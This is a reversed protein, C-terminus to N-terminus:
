TRWRHPSVCSLVGIRRIAGDIIVESQTVDVVFGDNGRALEEVVRQRIAPFSPMKADGFRRDFSKFDNGVQLLPPRRLQIGRRDLCHGAATAVLHAWPGLSDLEQLQYTRHFESVRATADFLRCLDAVEDFVTIPHLPQADLAAVRDLAIFSASCHAPIEAIRLFAALNAEVGAAAASWAERAALLVLRLTWLDGQLHQALAPDPSVKNRFQTLELRAMLVDAARELQRYSDRESTSRAIESQADALQQRVQALQEAYGTSEARLERLKREVAEALGAEGDSPDPGAAERAILLLMAVDDAANRIAAPEAAADMGCASLLPGVAEITKQAQQGSAQAQALDKAVREHSKRAQEFDVLLGPSSGTARSRADAVIAELDQVSETWPTTASKADGAILRHLDKQLRISQSVFRGLDRQDGEAELLAWAVWVPRLNQDHLVELWRERWTKVTWEGSPSTGRQQYCVGADRVARELTQILLPLTDDEHGLIQQLKLQLTRDARRLRYWDVLTVAAALLVGGAFALVTWSWPELAAM